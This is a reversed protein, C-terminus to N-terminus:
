LVAWVWPEPLMAPALPRPADSVGNTLRVLMVMWIHASCPSWCVSQVPFLGPPRSRCLVVTLQASSPTPSPGRV